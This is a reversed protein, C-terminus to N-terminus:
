DEMLQLRELLHQDIWGEDTWGRHRNYAKILDALQDRYLRADNDLARELLRDPLTDEEPQWGAQINFLKKASVIRAAALRLEGATTDWGTILNLM